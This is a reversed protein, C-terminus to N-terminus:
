FREKSCCGDVSYLPAATKHTRCRVEEEISEEDNYEKTSTFQPVRIVSASTLSIHRRPRQFASSLTVFIILLIFSCCSQFGAQDFLSSNTVEFLVCM